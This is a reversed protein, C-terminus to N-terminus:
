FTFGSFIQYKSVCERLKRCKKVADLSPDHAVLFILSLTYRKFDRDPPSPPPPVTRAERLWQRQEEEDPELSTPMPAVVNGKLKVKNEFFM